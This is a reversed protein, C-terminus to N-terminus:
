PRFPRFVARMSHTRARARSRAIKKKLYFFHNKILLFFRVGSLDDDGVAAAARARAPWRGAWSSGMKEPKM